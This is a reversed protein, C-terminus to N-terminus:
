SCVGISCKSPRSIGTGNDPFMEYILCFKKIKHILFAFDAYPLRLDILTAQILLCLSTDHMLFLILECNGVFM